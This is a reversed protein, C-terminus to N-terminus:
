QLRFIDEPNLTTISCDSTRIAFNNCDIYTAYIVCYESVNYLFKNPAIELTAEKLIVPMVKLTKFNPYNIVEIFKEDESNNNIEMFAIKEVFLKDVIQRIELNLKQRSLVYQIYTEINFVRIM